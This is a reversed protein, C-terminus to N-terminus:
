NSDKMIWDTLLNKLMPKDMPTVVDVSVTDSGDPHSEEKTVVVLAFTRERPDDKTVFGLSAGFTQLLWQQQVSNIGYKDLEHPKPENGDHRPQKM